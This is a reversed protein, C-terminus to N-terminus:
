GRKLFDALKMLIYIEGRDEKICVADVHETFGLYDPLKAKRKCQVKWIESNRNSLMVDVERHQGLSEGNSAYARKADWKPFYLKALNVVSREFNSGKIKSKSSM